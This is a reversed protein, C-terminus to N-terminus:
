VVMQFFFECIIDLIITKTSIVTNNLFAKCELKRMLDRKSLSNIEVESEVLGNKIFRDETYSKTLAQNASWWSLSPSPRGSM